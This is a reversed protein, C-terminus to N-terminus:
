NGESLYERIAAITVKTPGDLRPDANRADVNQQLYAEAEERTLGVLYNRVNRRVQAYSTGTM